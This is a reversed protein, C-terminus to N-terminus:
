AATEGAESIGQGYRHAIGRRIIPKTRNIKRTEARSGPRRASLSIRRATCISDLAMWDAIHGLDHGDAKLYGRGIRDPTGSNIEDIVYKLTSIIEAVSGEPLHVIAAWIARVPNPFPGIGDLNPLPSGDAMEPWIAAPQSGKVSQGSLGIYLRRCPIASNQKDKSPLPEQVGVETVTKTQMVGSSIAARGAITVSKDSSIHPGWAVAKWERGRTALRSDRGRLASATSRPTSVRLEFPVAGVPITSAEVM